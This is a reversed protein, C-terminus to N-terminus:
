ASDDLDKLGGPFDGEREQMRIYKRCEELGYWDPAWPKENRNCHEEDFIGNACCSGFTQAEVVEACASESLLGHCCCLKRDAKGAECCGILERGWVTVRGKRNYWDDNAFEAPWTPVRNIAPNWVWELPALGSVGLSTKAQVGRQDFDPDWETVRKMPSGTGSGEINEDPYGNRNIDYYFLQGVHNTVIDLIVKIGQKHCADVMERLKSLDGFHPNVELFNQTWYGHYGAVGADEEVNKVVPSIWLSTVGLTKLYDLRDIVGQYDGGHYGAPSDPFVNYDNNPDGNEFRDIMVQYIIEDRWDEVTNTIIVNQKPNECSLFMIAALVAFACGVMTKKLKLTTM